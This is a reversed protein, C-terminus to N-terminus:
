KNIDIKAYSKKRCVDRFSWWGIIGKYDSYISKFSEGRTVRRRIDIVQDRNLKASAADIGIRILGNEIAHERNQKNTCWELNSARNDSKIGNKHNVQEHSHENPIYSLAVFRHIRISRKRGNLVINCRAYGNVHFIAYEHGNRKDICRGDETFHCINM